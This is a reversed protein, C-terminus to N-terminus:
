SGDVDHASTGGEKAVVFALSKRKWRGQSVTKIEANPEMLMMHVPEGEKAVVFALSKRKWRGQM